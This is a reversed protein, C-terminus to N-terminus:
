ILSSQVLRGAEYVPSCAPKRSDLDHCDALFSFFELLLLGPDHLFSKRHKTGLAREEMTSEALSAGVKGGPHERRWSARASAERCVPMGEGM